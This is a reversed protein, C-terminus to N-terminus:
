YWIILKNYIFDRTGYYIIINSLENNYSNFVRSYIIINKNYPFEKDLLHPEESLYIFCKNPMLSQNKISQLTKLLINQNDFISTLSVFIKTNDNM